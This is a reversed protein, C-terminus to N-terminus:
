SAAGSPTRGSEAVLAQGRAPANLCGDAGGRGSAKDLSVEVGIGSAGRKSIQLSVFGIPLPPNTLRGVRTVKGQRKSFFM